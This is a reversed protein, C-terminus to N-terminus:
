EVLDIEETMGGECIVCCDDCSDANGPGVGWYTGEDGSVWAGYCIQEGEECALSMTKAEGDDLLYVEDGGPWSHPRDTSYLEVEVAYPHSNRMVFTVDAALAPAAVGIAAAALAVRRLVPSIKM